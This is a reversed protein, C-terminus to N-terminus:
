STLVQVEAELKGTLNDKAIELDHHVQLNLWFKESLGFYRSLRLAMEANVSRGGQLVERIQQVPVNIAQALQEEGIEMPKLFELLLIEGPHIAAVKEDIMESVQM